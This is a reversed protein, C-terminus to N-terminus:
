EAVPYRTAFVEAEAATAQQPTPLNLGTPMALFNSLGETDDAGLERMEENQGAQEVVFAHQGALGKQRALGALVLIEDALEAESMTNVKASLEVQQIMGSMNASVSVTGPPNTMTFLPPADEGDAEDGADVAADVADLSTAHVDVQEPAYDPVEDFTAAAHTAGDADGRRPRGERWAQFRLPRPPQPALPHPERLPAPYTVQNRRLWTFCGRM